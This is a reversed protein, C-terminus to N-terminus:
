DDPDYNLSREALNRVKRKYGPLDERVQKAADVNAPSDTNPVDAFILSMVSMVISEISHVPRWREGADEYGYQDDEPPHLISICVRGDHYINPHWMDVVFRMTPPEEPFGTTFILDAPFIGGDGFITVRWELLNDGDGKLGASFESPPNKKLDQLQRALHIQATNAAM